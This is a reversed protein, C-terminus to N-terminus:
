NTAWAGGFSWAQTNGGLLSIANGSIEIPIQITSNTQNGSGAGSNGVSTVVRLAIRTLGAFRSSSRAERGPRTQSM